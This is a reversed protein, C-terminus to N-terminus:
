YNEASFKSSQLILKFNDIHCCFVKAVIIEIKMTKGNWNDPTYGYYITRELDHGSLKGKTPNTLTAEQLQANSM